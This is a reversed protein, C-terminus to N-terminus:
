PVALMCSVVNPDSDSARVLMELLVLEALDVEVLELGAADVKEVVVVELAAGVDECADEAGGGVLVGDLGADGVRQLPFWTSDSQM